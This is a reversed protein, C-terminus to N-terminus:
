TLGFYADVGKADLSPRGHQSSYRCAENILRSISLKIARGTTSMSQQSVYVMNTPNTMRANAMMLGCLEAFANCLPESVGEILEWALIDRMNPEIYRRERTFIDFAQRIASKAQPKWHIFLCNRPAGIVDMSTGIATNHNSPLSELAIQHLKQGVQRLQGFLTDMSMDGAGGSILNELQVSNSFFGGAEPPRNSLEVLKKRVGTSLLSLQPDDTNGSTVGLQIGSDTLASKFILEVVRFHQENAKSIANERLKRQEAQERVLATDDLIMISEVSESTIGALQKAFSWLRDGGIAAEKIADDFVLARRHLAYESNDVSSTRLRETEKDIYEEECQLTSLRDCTAIARTLMSRLADVSLANSEIDTTNFKRAKPITNSVEFPTHEAAMALYLGDVDSGITAHLDMTADVATTHYDDEEDEEVVVNHIVTESSRVLKEQIIEELRDTESPQPSTDIFAQALNRVSPQTEWIRRFTPNANNAQQQFCALGADIPWLMQDDGKCPFCPRTIYVRKPVENLLHTAETDNVPVAKRAKAMSELQAMKAAARCALSFERVKRNTTPTRKAVRAYYDILYEWTTAHCISQWHPKTSPVFGMTTPQEEQQEIPLWIAIRAVDPTYAGNAPGSSNRDIPDAWAPGPLSVYDSVPKVHSVGYARRAAVWNRDPVSSSGAQTSHPESEYSYSIDPFSFVAYALKNEHSGDPSLLSTGRYANGGRNHAQHPGEIGLIGRAVCYAVDENPDMTLFDVRPGCAESNDYKSDDTHKMDKPYTVNEGWLHEKWWSTPPNRRAKWLPSVGPLKSIGLLGMQKDTFAPGEFMAHMGACLADLRADGDVELSTACYGDNEHALVTSTGPNASPARTWALVFLLAPDFRNVRPDNGGGSEEEGVESDEEGGESDEEGGESDEEVGGSDEEVGGSSGKNSTGKVAKANRRSEYEVRLAAAVAAVLVATVAGGQVVPDTSAGHLHRTLTEKVFVSGSDWISYVNLRTLFARIKSPKDIWFNMPVEQDPPPFFSPVGDVNDLLNSYLFCVDVIFDVGQPSGLLNGFIKQVNADVGAWNTLVGHTGSPVPKHTAVHTLIGSMEERSLSTFGKWPAIGTSVLVFALIVVGSIVEKLQSQITLQQGKQNLASTDNPTSLTVPFSVFDMAQTFLNSNTALGGFARQIVGKNLANNQNTKPRFVLGDTQKAPISPASSPIPPGASPIPPGPSPIPGIPRTARVNASEDLILSRNLVRAVEKITTTNWHTPESPISASRGGFRLTIYNVFVGVVGISETTNLDEEKCTPLRIHTACPGDASMHLGSIDDTNNSVHLTNEELIVTSSSAVAMAVRKLGVRKENADHTITRNRQENAADLPTSLAVLLPEVLARIRELMAPELSDAFTSLTEESFGNSSDECFETLLTNLNHPDGSTQIYARVHDSIENMTLLWGIRLAIERIQELEVGRQKTLQGELASLLGLRASAEANSDHLYRHPADYASSEMCSALPLVDARLYNGSDQGLAARMYIPTRSQKATDNAKLHDLKQRVDRSDRGGSLSASCESLEVLREVFRDRTTFQRSVPQATAVM